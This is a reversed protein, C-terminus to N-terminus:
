VFTAFLAIPVVTNRMKWASDAQAIHVIGLGLFSLHQRTVHNKIDALYIFWICFSSIAGINDLRHWRGESLIIPSELSDALHYMTSSLFTFWTLWFALPKRQLWFLRILPLFSINTMATVVVWLAKEAAGKGVVFPMRPPPKSCNSRGGGTGWDLRRGAEVALLLLM